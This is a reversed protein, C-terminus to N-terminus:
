SNRGTMKNIADIHQRSASRKSRRPTRGEEQGFRLNNGKLAKLLDRGFSDEDDSPAEPLDPPEEISADKQREVRSIAHAVIGKMHPRALEFLLRQDELIWQQVLQRTRMANGGTQRLAERIRSTAYSQTTM